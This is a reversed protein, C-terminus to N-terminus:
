FPVRVHRYILIHRGSRNTRGPFYYFQISPPLAAIIATYHISLLCFLTLVIPLSNQARLTVATSSFQTSCSSTLGVVSELVVFIFGFSKQPCFKLRCCLAKRHPSSLHRFRVVDRRM